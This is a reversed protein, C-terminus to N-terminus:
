YSTERFSPKKRNNLYNVASKKAGNYTSYMESTLLINGNSAWVRWWYSKGKRCVEVALRREM